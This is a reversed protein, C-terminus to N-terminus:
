QRSPNPESSSIRKLLEVLKPVDTVTRIEKAVITEEPLKISKRKEASTDEM